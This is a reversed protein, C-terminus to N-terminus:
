GPHLHGPAGQPRPDVVRALLGSAPKKRHKCISLYTQQRDLYAYRALMNRDACFATVSSGDPLRSLLQRCLQHAVGSKQTLNGPFLQQQHVPLQKVVDIDAASFCRQGHEGAFPGALSFPSEPTPHPTM